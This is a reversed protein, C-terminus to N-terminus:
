RIKTVNSKSNLTSSASKDINMILYELLRELENLLSVRDGNIAETTHCFKSSM